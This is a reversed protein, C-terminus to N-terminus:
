LLTHQEPCALKVLDSFGKLTETESGINAYTTAQCTVEPRAKEPDLCNLAPFFNASYHSSFTDNPDCPLYVFDKSSTVPLASTPLRWTHQHHVMVITIRDPTLITGGYDKYKGFGHQDADAPIACNFKFEHHMLRSVPLLCHRNATSFSGTDLCSIIRQNGHMDVCPFGIIVGVCKIADGHVGSLQVNGGTFNLVHELNNQCIPKGTDAVAGSTVCSPTSMSCADPPLIITSYEAAVVHLDDPLSHSSLLCCVRSAFYYEDNESFNETETHTTFAQAQASNYQRQEQITVQLRGKQKFAGKKGKPCQGEPM